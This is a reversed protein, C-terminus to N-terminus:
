AAAFGHGSRPWCRHASTLGPAQSIYRTDSVVQGHGSQLSCGREALAALEACAPSPAANRIRRDPGGLVSGRLSWILNRATLRGAAGGRGPFYAGHNARRTGAM